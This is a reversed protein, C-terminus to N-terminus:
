SVRHKNQRVSFAILGSLALLFLGLSGPEPVEQQEPNLSVDDLGWAVFPDTTTVAFELTDNGTAVLQFLRSDSLASRTNVQDILQGDWYVQFIQDSNLTTQHDVSFGFAFLFALDLIQGATDTIQQSLSATLPSTDTGGSNLAASVDDFDCFGYAACGNTVIFNSSNQGLAWGTFDGTEFGGNTILDAHAPIAFFMFAGAIANAFYFKM